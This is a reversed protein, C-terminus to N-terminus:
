DAIYLESVTTPSRKIEHLCKVTQIVFKQLRNRLILSLHLEESLMGEAKVLM